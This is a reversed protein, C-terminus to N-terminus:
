ADGSSDLSDGGLNCTCPFKGEVKQKVNRYPSGVNFTVSIREGICLATEQNRLGTLLAKENVSIFYSNTALNLQSLALPPSKRVRCYVKSVM